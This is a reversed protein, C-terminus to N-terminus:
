PTLWLRCPRSRGDRQRRGSLFRSSGALRCRGADVWGALEGHAEGSVGAVGVKAAVAKAFDAIEASSGPARHDAISGTESPTSEVVYLRNM